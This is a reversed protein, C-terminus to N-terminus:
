SMNRSKSIEADLLRHVIRREVDVHVAGLRGLAPEGFVVDGGARSFVRLPLKWIVGM